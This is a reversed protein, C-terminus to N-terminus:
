SSACALKKMVAVSKPDNLIAKVGFHLPQPWKNWECWEFGQTEWDMEPTFEHDVVAIFNSYRFSGKTFVYIPILKFNGHYGAEEKVERRVAEEPNEGKDIAGGWVGFTGPEQVYASRHALLFRKTDKAFFICGAGEAGWFGTQNLKRAHEQHNDFDEDRAETLGALFLIRDVDIEFM